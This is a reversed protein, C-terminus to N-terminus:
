FCIKFFIITLQFTGAAMQLNALKLSAFFHNNISRFNPIFNISSTKKYRVQMYSSYINKAVDHNVKVKVNDKIYEM